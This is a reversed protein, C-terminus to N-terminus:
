QKVRIKEEQAIREINGARVTVAKNIAKKYVDLPHGSVYCGICEKEM